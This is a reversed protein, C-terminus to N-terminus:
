SRNEVKAILDGTTLGWDAILTAPRQRAPRRLAAIVKPYLENYRAWKGLIDDTGSRAGDPSNGLARIVATLATESEGQLANVQSMTEASAAQPAALATGIIGQEVRLSEKSFLMDRTTDVVALVHTANQQRDFAGKALIAFVSVLMVVLFGTMVSLIM